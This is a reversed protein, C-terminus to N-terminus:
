TESSDAAREARLMLILGAVSGVLMVTVPIINRVAAPDVGDAGLSILRGVVSLLLFLIAFRFAGTESHIVTHMVLLVGFTLFSGGILGRVTALALPTTAQLGASELLPTPIFMYRVGFFLFLAAIVAAIARGITKM